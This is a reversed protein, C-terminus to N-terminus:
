DAVQSYRTHTKFNGIFVCLVKKKSKMQLELIDLILEEGSIKFNEGKQSVM